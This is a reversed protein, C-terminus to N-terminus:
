SEEDWEFQECHCHAYRPERADPYEVLCRGTPGEVPEEHEDKDHGCTCRTM